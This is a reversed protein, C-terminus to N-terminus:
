VSAGWMCARGASPRLVRGPLSRQAAAVIIEVPHGLAAEAKILFEDSNRAQRLANTGVVRVSGFPLKGVRQGFRELCALARKQAGPTLQKNDDLGAGLRVSERLRDIVSLEQDNLQAVILHFSNSGLDVAAVSELASKTRNFAFM